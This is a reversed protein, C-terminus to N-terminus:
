KKVSSLKQRLLYQSAIRSRTISALAMEYAVCVATCCLMVIIVALEYCFYM